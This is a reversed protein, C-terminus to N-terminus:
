VGMVVIPFASTVTVRVKPLVQTVWVMVSRALSRCNSQAILMLQCSRSATNFTMTECVEMCCFRRELRLEPM